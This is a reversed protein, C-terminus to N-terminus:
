PRLPHLLRLRHPSQCPRLSSKQRQLLPVFLHLPLWQRAWLHALLRQLALLLRQLPSQHVPRVSPRSAAYLPLCSQLWRLPPPLRALTLAAVLQLKHLRSPQKLQALAM